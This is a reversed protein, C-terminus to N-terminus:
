RRSVHFASEGSVAAAGFAAFYVTCPRAERSSGSSLISLSFSSGGRLRPPRMGSSALPTVEGVPDRETGASCADWSIDYDTSFLRWSAPRLRQSSRQPPNTSRRRLRFIARSIAHRPGVALASIKGVALPADTLNASQAGDPFSEAHHQSTIIPQLPPAL